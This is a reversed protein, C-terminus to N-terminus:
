RCGAARRDPSLNSPSRPHVACCGAPSDDPDAGRPSSTPDAPPRVPDYVRPVRAREVHEVVLPTNGLVEPALDVALRSVQVHLHRELHMRLIQHEIRGTDALEHLAGAGGADADLEVGRVQEPLPHVRHGHYLIEAREYDM